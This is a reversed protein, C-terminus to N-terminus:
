VMEIFRYGVDLVTFDGATVSIPVRSSIRANAPVRVNMQTIGAVMDPAAGAYLIQGEIGFFTARVPLRLPSANSGIISGDEYPNEFLGMGNAWFTIISGRAAPNSPTNLTNDQNLIAGFETSGMRFIGPDSAKVDRLPACDYSRRVRRPGPSGALECGCFSCDRQSSGRACVSATGASRQLSVRVGAVSSPLKGGELASIVGTVPGMGSGFLTVAMGGHGWGIPLLCRELRMWDIRRLRRLSMAVFINPAQEFSTQLRSMTVVDGAPLTAAWRPGGANEYVYTSYKLEGDSAGLRVYFPALGATSDAPACRRYAGPTTPFHTSSTTGTAIVNGQADLEVSGVTTLGNARLPRFWAM